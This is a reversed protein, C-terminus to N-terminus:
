HANNTTVTWTGNSYSGTASYFQSATEIGFVSWGKSGDFPVAFNGSKDVSYSTYQTQGNTTKSFIVYGNGNSWNQVTGAFSTLSINQSSTDPASITEALASLDTWTEAVNGSSDKGLQDVGLINYTGTPLDFQYTWQGSQNKTLSSSYYQNGSASEIYLWAQANSAITLGSISGQANPAIDFNQSTTGSASVTFSESLPTFNGSQDQVGILYWNGASLNASFKGNQDTSIWQVKNWDSQTQPNAIPSVELWANQMSQGDFSLQGSFDNTLNVDFTTSNSTVSTESSAVSTEDYYNGSSDQVAYVVWKGSSLNISYSGNQIPAWIWNQGTTDVPSQPGFAIWGKQVANGDVTVQGTLPAPIKITLMTSGSTPISLSQNLSISGSQDTIGTVQYSQGPQLVYTYDGAADMGMANFNGNQDTYLTITNNSSTQLAIQANAIPKGNADVLQGGIPQATMSVPSGGSQITFPVDMPYYSGSTTSDGNTGMGIVVYSGPALNTTAQGNVVNLWTENSYNNSKFDAADLIGVNGSSLLTGDPLNVKLTFNPQAPAVTFTDGNANVTETNPAFSITGNTGQASVVSFQDGSPLDMAFQGSNNTMYWQAGSNGTSYVSNIVSPNSNSSYVAGTVSVKVYGNKLPQTQEYDQYVTGIVNYSSDTINPQATQGSATTFTGLSPASLTGGGYGATSGGGGSTPQTTVSAMEGNSNVSIVNWTGTPLYTSFNGNGDTTVWSSGASGSLNVFMNAMPTTGDAAYLTGKVNPANVSVQQIATALAKNTKTDVLSYTIDYTGAQAFNELLGLNTSSTLTLPKNQAFDVTGTSDPNKATSAVGNLVSQLTVNNTVSQKNSDTVSVQISVPDSSTLAPGILVNNWYSTGTVMTNGNSSLALKPPQLNLAQTSSSITFNTDIPWDIGNLYLSTAVYSGYPLSFTFGDKQDISAYQPFQSYDPQGTSTAPYIVVQGFDTPAMGGTATSGNTTVTGTITGMNPVTVESPFNSAVGNKVTFNYVPYFPIWTGANDVGTVDIGYLTYSGDPLDVSFQGNRDTMATNGYGNNSGFSLYANSVPNGNADKVTGSLQALPPLKVASSLGSVKGQGVTFSYASGLSIWTSTTNTPTTHIPVNVSDIKYTGDPLVLSFGGSSDTFATYGYGNNSIISLNAGSEPNGNSDVLTGSVQVMEPLQITTPLGTAKGNAVTFTYTTGFSIGVSSNNVIVSANNLTYTGDPLYVSFQGTSDTNTYYEGGSSNMFDLPANAEPTGQSNELTGTVPVLEPLHIVTPLGTVQGNAVTFTYTSGLPMWTYTNNINVDVSNVTYTGDPLYMSFQGSSDTTASYGSGDSKTVNLTANVEPSGSSDELKSTVQVVEPLQIPASLGTAQGNAVTITYTSGLSASVPTKNITYNVSNVTYTGDPLYATFQGTSDTTASYGSGDSNTLYLGANSVPSGSSDEVTGTVQVMEPLQITTPLGTAKRNAVTFTYPSAFQVWESSNSLNVDVGSLKYTGDPLSVSFQGSSNTSASFGNGNSDVFSFYVNNEPKGNSDEITGTVPVLEPLQVPSSLGTVNGNAVTITYTSGLSITTPNNNVNVMVSDFTYTGDPLYVTFQGSSDTNVYYDNGNNDKLDLSANAEVNGSSSEVTGTVQVLEPLKIPSSLGTVSGNAVTFKYISGLSVHTSTNDISLNVQNVTYTGDPLYVSFQGNSDTTASYTGGSYTLNLNANAVAQGSSDELTGTVDVLDPLKIPSPLGAVQGNTVTFTYESGLSVWNFSNNNDVNVSDLTYSGDPLYVSFGGSSDTTASYSDGNNNVISLSANVEPNGSYDDLTGTVNPNEASVSTSATGIAQHTAANFATVEVTYSGAKKFTLNIGEVLAGGDYTQNLVGNPYAITEAAFNPDAVGGSLSADSAPVVSGNQMVQVTFWVNTSASISQGLAANMTLSQGVGVSSQPSSLQLGESNSVTPPTVYVSQYVASGVTQASTADYLQVSANFNGTIFPTLTFNLPTTSSISSGPVSYGFGSVPSVYSQYTSSLVGSGVSTGYLGTSPSLLTGNQYMGILYQYNDNSSISYVNTTVNLNDSFGSTVSASTPSVSLVSAANAIAQPSFLPSMAIATSVVGALVGKTTKMRMM